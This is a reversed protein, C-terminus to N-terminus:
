HIINKRIIDILEIDFILTSSPPIIGVKKDGYAMEPPVIIRAKSGKNLYRITKDWGPIVQRSGAVFKFPQERRVSSDFVTGDPLYGTYHVVVVDGEEPKEGIGEKVIIYKVGTLTELTDKNAINFPEPQVPKRVELIEVDFMLNTEPPVPGRGAKGYALDYPIWLTAKDGERLYKFAQDWGDIVMGEGAIFEFPDSRSVSNDFIEGDEFYGTYHVRVMLGEEIKKGEGPETISYKIGGTITTFLEPDIVSLEEPKKVELLEIKFIVTSNPPIKDFGKEGYALHPPVVFEAKGGQSMLMLGEEWGRIVHGKGLHFTLPADREYTDDIITGDELKAIYHISVIDGDSPIAGNGTKLISYKLGSATEHYTITRLQDIISCGCLLFFLFVIATKYTKRM